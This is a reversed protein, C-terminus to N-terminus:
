PPAPARFTSRALECAGLVDAKTSATYECGLTYENTGDFFVYFLERGANGRVTPVALVARYGPHGATDERALPEAIRGGLQRSVSSLLKQLVPQVDGIRDETINVLVTFQELRVFSEDDPSVTIEFNAAARAHAADPTGRLEHWAEPYSFSVGDSAVTKATPSSSPSTPSPSPPGGGVTVSPNCASAAIATGLLLLLARRSM